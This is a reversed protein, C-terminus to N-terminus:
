SVYQLLYGTLGSMNQNTKIIHIQMSIFLLPCSDHRKIPSVSPVVFGRQPPRDNPWSKLRSSGQMNVTINLTASVTPM